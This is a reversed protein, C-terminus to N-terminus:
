NDSINDLEKLIDEAKSEEAARESVEEEKRIERKAEKELQKAEEILSNIEETQSATDADIKQLQKTENELVTIFQKMTADNAELMAKTRVNRAEEPLSQLAVSNEILEQLKLKLDTSNM